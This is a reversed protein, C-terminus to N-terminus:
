QAPPSLVQDITYVTGNSAVIPTGIVQVGNVLLGGNATRELRLTTGALTRIDVPGGTLSAPDFAQTLVHHSLLRELTQKNDMWTNLNTQLLPSFASDSPVFLTLPGPGSLAPTLGTTNWLLLFITKDVSQELTSVIDTGSTQAPAVPAAAVPVPTPTPSVPPSTPAAALPATPAALADPSRVAAVDGDPLRLVQGVTIVNCDALGNATCIDRFRQFDGYLKRAISGLTDGSAVTYSEGASGAALPQPTVAAAGVVPTPGAAGTLQAVPPVRIAQGVEIRDCNAISNYTCLQAYLSLDGYVAQAILSLTEGAQVTHTSDSATSRSTVVSQAVSPVPAIETQSESAPGSTLQPFLGNEVSLRYRMPIDTDNYVIVTYEGTPQSILAVLENAARNPDRSGAALNNDILTGGAFFARLRDGDLLFFGSRRTLEQQDQPDFRLIVRMPVGLTWPQVTIYHKDFTLVGEISSEQALSPRVSLLAFFLTLILVILSFPRSM